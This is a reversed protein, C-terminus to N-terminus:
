GFVIQNPFIVSWVVFRRSLTINLQVVAFIVTNLDESLDVSGYLMIEILRNSDLNLLSNPHAGPALVNTVSRLLQLRPLNHLPCFLLFHSTDEKLFNCSCAATPVINMDFLHSNLQSRGLRLQTQIINAYRDGFMFYKPIEHCFYM